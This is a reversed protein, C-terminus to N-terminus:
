SGLGSFGQFALSMIGVTVLTIALGRLPRPGFFLELRPRLSAFIAVVVTFGLGAGAGAAIAGAFTTATGTTLLAVGLVVCNMTLTPVRYGALASWGASSRQLVSSLAQVTLASLALLIIIRLYDLGWPVLLSENLLQYLGATVALGCTTALGTVLADAIRADTGPAQGLVPGLGLLRELAINNATAAAIATLMLDTM